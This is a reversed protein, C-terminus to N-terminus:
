PTELEPHPHHWRQQWDFYIRRTGADYVANQRQWRATHAMAADRFEGPPMAAALEYAQRAAAREENTFSQRIHVLSAKTLVM